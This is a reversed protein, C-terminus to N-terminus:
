KKKFYEKAKHFNIYIILGISVLSLCRFIWVYVNDPTITQALNFLGALLYLIFNKMYDPLTEANNHSQDM